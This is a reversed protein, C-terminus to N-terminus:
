TGPRGAEGGERRDQGEGSTEDLRRQIGEREHQKVADLKRQIDDMVGSLNYRQMRNAQQSRLREMIDRLGLQRQGMRGQFGAQQLRQMASRLDSNKLYDDALADLIDDADLGEIQQTGDWRSYSHQRNFFFRNFM